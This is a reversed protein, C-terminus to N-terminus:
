RKDEQRATELISVFKFSNLFLLARKYSITKITNPVPQNFRGEIEFEAKHSYYHNPFTSLEIIM